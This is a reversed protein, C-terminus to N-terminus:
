AAMARAARILVTRSDSGNKPLDTPVIGVANCAHADRLRNDAVIASGAIVIM